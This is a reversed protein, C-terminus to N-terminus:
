LLFSACTSHLFLYLVLLLLPLQFSWL